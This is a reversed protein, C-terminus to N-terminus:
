QLFQWPNVPHGNLRLEFHLHPGTSRGTSGMSAILQGKTVNTGCPLLTGDIMHAYFTQWGGDHDIVILNGYGRDSWGSYVIVGSDAAYIPSGFDGGFDLGNHVPPNYDYGSLWTASTPWTFIGTGVNGYIIGGCAGPGLYSNGSAPNDRAAIWVVSPRTGGPVILMTGPEINPNAYDGVVEPSLENLPYNVIVDPDVGYFSAVGNLGEGESWRHYLGDEPLIALEIGIGLGDPTDGLTYRNSWLVTEPKLGFKDAIGFITDGAEVTYSIVEYRTETQSINTVQLEPLRYIGSSQGATSFVPTSVGSPLTAPTSTSQQTPQPSASTGNVILSGVGWVILVMVVFAVAFLGFRLLRPSQLMKPTSPDKITTPPEIISQDSQSIPDSYTNEEDDPDSIRNESM